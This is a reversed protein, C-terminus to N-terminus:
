HSFNGLVPGISSSALNLQYKATSRDADASLGVPIEITKADDTIVGAKASFAPIGLPRVPIKAQMADGVTQGIAKAQILGKGSSVIAVHWSYRAAKQPDVNLKQTLAEVPKFQSSLSLTVNVSQPRDSYNHVVASVLGEDGQSFFRPLALRLILDQTSIIKQTTEGVDTKMDIGRVTARWTTLNDPLKISAIAIGNKDTTLDPIWAATDKFEKRLRPEVKDPGGSYEEPFSCVTTVANERRVYFSKQINEANEARIAYISEDVVGLSLDTNAAPTGDFHKATITYKVMEGPKYKPKDSAVAIKLFNNEPSVRIMKDQTYFKHHKDIITVSVYVNPAYDNILPIEVLKATADMKVVKYNYIHAGETSVIAEVGESGQVPATIMVKATEGPKYVDKDLKISLVESNADDGYRVYPYRSNAIWMNTSDFIFNGIKDHAEATVYFTDSPSEDKVDFTTKAKGEADTM